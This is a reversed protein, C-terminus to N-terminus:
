IRTVKIISGIIEASYQKLDRSAPGSVPSGSMNFEAGHRDCRSKGNNFPGIIGGAHTCNRSFVKVFLDTERFLLFGRPDLSNSSVAISNGVTKLSSYPSENMNYEIFDSLTEGDDIDAKSDECSQIATLVIPTACILACKCSKQIFERRNM